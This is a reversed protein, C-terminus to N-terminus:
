ATGASPTPPTDDSPPTFPQKRTVIDLFPSNKSLVADIKPGIIPPLIGPYMVKKAPETDLLIDGEIKFFPVKYETNHTVTGVNCLDSTWGGDHVAVDLDGHDKVFEKLIAILISAKM